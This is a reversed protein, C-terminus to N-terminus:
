TLKREKRLDVLLPEVIRRAGALNPHVGDNERVKVEGGSGDPLYATYRGDPSLTEHTDVYHAWPRAAIETKVATAMDPAVKEIDGRTTIPLGIWYVTRNPGEIADLVQAVRRQYEAAWEKTGVKVVGDPGQMGQADNGGFGVVVVEPDYASMDEALKAPWNLVDPRALGTGVKWDETIKVPAGGFGSTLAPGIWGMLSDGSVLIRVPDAAAPVRFVPPATTTTTANPITPPATVVSRTDEPPPEIKNGASESLLKRPRNLHTADSVAKIPGTIRLAWTRQWGFPQTHATTDIRDANLFAGVVLSVLLM